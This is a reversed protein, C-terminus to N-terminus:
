WRSVPRPTARPPSRGSRTRHRRRTLSRDPSPHRGRHRLQGAGHEGQPRRAGRRHQGDGEPHHRCNGKTMAEDIEAAADELLRAVLAADRSRDRNAGGSRPDPRRRNEDREQEQPYLGRSEWPNTRHIHDLAPGERWLAPDQDRHAGPQSVPRRATRAPERILYRAGNPGFSEEDSVATLTLTGGVHERLRHLYLFVFAMGATGAKM